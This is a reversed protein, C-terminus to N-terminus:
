QRGSAESVLFEACPLELTLTQDRSPSIARRVKGGMREITSGALEMALTNSHLCRSEPRSGENSVQDNTLASTLTIAIWAHHADERDNAIRPLNTARLRVNCQEAEGVGAIAHILEVLALEFCASDIVVSKLGDDMVVSVQCPQETVQQMTSQLRRLIPRLDTPQLNLADARAAAVIRDLITNARTANRLGETIVQRRLSPSLDYRMCQLHTTLHGVLVSVDKAFTGAMAGLARNRQPQTLAEGLRRQLTIDRAVGLVGTIVGASDRVPTYIADFVTEGAAMTFIPQYSFPNGTNFVEALRTSITAGAEGGLVSMPTRGKAEHWPVPLHKQGAENVAVYVLEGGSDPEVLFLCDSSTRFLTDFHEGLDSSPPHQPALASQHAMM